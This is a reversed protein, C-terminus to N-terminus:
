ANHEMLKKFAAYSKGSQISERAIEIADLMATGPRACVIAAAANALTVDMQAKSGKNQIINLFIQASEEVNGGSKIEDHVITNMGLDEPRYIEEGRNTILKFPATLSIEDYTDLSHAICYRKDTEAYIYGYLRALELSFVGVMQKKVLAPNIMPGLMNFFTKVGLERRIPAVHKMAPHFLPAHLICVNSREIQKKLTSIDNTFTYGLHEMVNSSGVPSSVGYNGHKAVKIGAGAVVFSVTTSINFTSKGDGGTGCLDMPDFEAVPVVVCLELMADRFGAMEQVTVSRMMFITMFATTQAANIEGKGIRLMTKKADERSLTKHEILQQLVEKM